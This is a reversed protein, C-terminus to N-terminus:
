PGSRGFFGVVEGVGLLAVQGLEDLLALRQRLFVAEDQELVLALHLQHPVALGAVDAGGHQRELRQLVHVLRALFRRFRRLETQEVRAPRWSLPQVLLSMQPSLM